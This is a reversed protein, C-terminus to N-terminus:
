HFKLNVVIKDKKLEEIRSLINGLMTKVKHTFRGKILTEDSLHKQINQIGGEIDQCNIMESKIEKLKRLKHQTLTKHLSIGSLTNEKESIQSNIAVIFSNKLKIFELEKDFSRIEDSSLNPDLKKKLLAEEQLIIKGNFYFEPHTDLAKRPERTEFVRIESYVEYLENQLDQNQKKLIKGDQTLKEINKLVAIYEPNNKYKEEEWNVSKEMKNIEIKLKYIEDDILKIKDELVDMSENLAKAKQINEPINRYGDVSLIGTALSYQVIIGALDEKSVLNTFAKIEIERGALAFLRAVERAYSNGNKIFGAECGFLDIERVSQPLECRKILYNVFEQPSFQKKEPDGYYGEHAHGIFTVRQPKLTEFDYPSHYLLFCDECLNSVRDESYKERFAGLNKLVNGDEKVVVIM